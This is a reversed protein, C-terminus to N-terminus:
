SEESDEKATSSNADDHGKQAGQHQFVDVQVGVGAQLEGEHEAEDVRRVRQGLADVQGADHGDQEAAQHHAVVGVVVEGGDGLDRHLLGHAGEGEHALGGDENVQAEADEGERVSHLQAQDDPGEDEDEQASSEVDEREGHQAVLEPSCYKVRM